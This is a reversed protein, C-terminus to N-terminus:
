KTKKLRGCAEWGFCNPLTQAKIIIVNQSTTQKPCQHLNKLSNLCLMKRSALLLKSGFDVGRRGHNTLLLSKEIFDKNDNLSLHSMKMCSNENFFVAGFM